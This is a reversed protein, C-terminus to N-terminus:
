FMVDDPYKKNVNNKDDTVDTIDTVCPRADQTEPTESTEPTKNIGYSGLIKNLKATDWIIAAAGTATRGRDFGLSNLRRGITRENQKSKEDKKRNFEDTIDQVSLKGKDVTDSLTRVALLIQAEISEAKDVIRRKSLGDVLKLFADNREPAIFRIIQLLPKLIDGLRGGAPKSTEEFKKGLHLAKFATLKENLPLLLEPRVENDFRKTSEPMNITVARTSLIEHMEVNTAIITPGFVSYYITDEFPGKEPYLVRPVKGGREFRHLLIDETGTREAKKWVDMVDFFISAGFNDAARIIYADRLSEVHLGRYAAYLLAKGTRSKGREPVAYLCLIPSYEFADFFYTHLVWAALLDYHEDSPLESINQLTARLENYLKRNSEQEPMGKLLKYHELVKEGRPLLWPIKDIPPPLYIKGNMEVEVKISVNDGDKVLFAPMNDHSVLDVLGNFQAKYEKPTEIDMLDSQDKDAKKKAHKRPCEPSCYKKLVANSCAFGKYGKFAQNVKTVLVTDGLPPMNKKDWGNLIEIIKEKPISADRYYKALLFAAEDRSGDDAGELIRNICPLGYDECGSEAHTADERGAGKTLGRKEIIEDLQRETIKEVKSLHEWQDEFPEQGNNMNIFVTKGDKTLPQYLPLNIYNGVGGKALSNQKPFLEFTKDSVAEKILSSLVLRSKKAAIAEAFFVWVHFGKSKSIEVSCPIDNQLLVEHVKKADDIDSTDIDVAIFHSTNDPLLPYIGIHKVGSILHDSIVEDSLPQKVSKGGALGYVDNRGKFIAKFIEVNNVM